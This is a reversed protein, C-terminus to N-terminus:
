SPSQLPLRMPTRHTTTTAGPQSVRKGTRPKARAIRIGRVCSLDVGVVDRGFAAQAAFVDEYGTGLDGHLAVLLM